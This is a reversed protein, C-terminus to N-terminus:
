CIVCAIGILQLCRVACAYVTAYIADSHHVVVRHSAAHREAVIRTRHYENTLWAYGGAIIMLHFRTHDRNIIPMNPM